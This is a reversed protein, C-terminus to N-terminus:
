PFAGGREPVRPLACPYPGPAVHSSTKAFRQKLRLFPKEYFHFSVFALGATSAANLAVLALGAPWTPHTPDYWRLRAAAATVLYMLPLHFVYIGYSYGGVTRLVPHSYFRMPVRRLSAADISWFLLAAFLVALTGYLFVRLWPHHIPDFGGSLALLLLGASPGAYNALRRAVRYGDPLRIVLALLAGTALADARTPTMTYLAFWHAGAATLVLRLLLAGVIVGCAIRILARHSFRWVVLPWVLYFQEEVSLSWLPIIIEAWPSWTKQLPIWYNATYTWLSPQAARLQELAAHSGTARRAAIMCVLTVALFGYYLPFIRLVRRGYFSRFYNPTGKADFLIGTILFGSIVFFLDVGAWGLQLAAVPPTQPLLASYHCVLVALVATGRLGDLAPWHPRDPAPVTRVPVATGMLDAPRIVTHRLRSPSVRRINRTPAPRPPRSSRASARGFTARRPESAIGRPERTQREPRVTLLQRFRSGDGYETGWRPAHARVFADIYEAFTRASPRLGGLQRRDSDYHFYVIPMEGNASREALTDWADCDGDHGHNLLVYRPDL